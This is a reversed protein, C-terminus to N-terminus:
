SAPRRAIQRHELVVLDAPVALRDRRDHSLGLFLGVVRGAQNADSVFGGRGRQGEVRGLAIGLRGLVHEAFRGGDPDAIRLSGEVARRVADVAGVPRRAVIVAGDLGMRDGDRPLVAAQRDMVAALHDMQGARGQGVHEANRVLLHMHERGEDAAAEAVLGDPIVVDNRGGGGAHGFPRHPQGQRPFAHEPRGAAARQGFLPHREAGVM